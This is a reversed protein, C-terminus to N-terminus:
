YATALYLRAVTLEPDLRVTNGFHEIAEEYNANKYASVGMNLENRAKDSGDGQACAYATSCVVLCVLSAIRRNMQIKAGIESLENCNKLCRGRGMTEQLVIASLYELELM